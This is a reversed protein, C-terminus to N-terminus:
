GTRCGLNAGASHTMRSAFVMMTDVNCIGVVQEMEVRNMSGGQVELETCIDHEFIHVSVEYAGTDAAEWVVPDAVGGGLVARGSDLAAAVPAATQMVAATRVHM